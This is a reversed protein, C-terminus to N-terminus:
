RGRSRWYTQPVPCVGGPCNAGEPRYFMMGPAAPTLVVCDCEAGKACACAPGCKCAAGTLRAAFRPSPLCEGFRPCPLAEGPGALCLLLLLDLM